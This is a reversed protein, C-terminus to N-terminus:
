NLVWSKLTFEGYQVKQHVPFPRSPLTDDTLALSIREAVIRHMMSTLQQVERKLETISSLTQQNHELSRVQQDSLCQLQVELAPYKSNSQQSFASIERHQKKMMAELEQFRLSNSMVSPTM